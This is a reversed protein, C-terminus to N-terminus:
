PTFTAKVFAEPNELGADFAAYATNITEVTRSDFSSFISLDDYNNALIQGATGFYVVNNALNEDKKIVAGYIRGQAIPDVMSNPVFIKDGDSDAIGALKNWITYNNAYVVRSGIGKLQGFIARITADDYTQATLINTSKIGANPVISGGAPATGDLRAMIIKEKAVAIRKAQHEVLWDEFADISKFQMMRSIAVHKKIEIGSLPLLDFDDQEDDPNATGETVGTADGALIAKHRPIGFGQTMNSKTADDYMPSYSEVLEIIRNLTVQPVVAGTNQTTHTFAAREEATLDGLLHVGDRVALNKLWARRYVAADDAAAAPAAPQQPNLSRVTDVNVGGAAISNRINQATQRRTLEEAIGRAEAELATLDPNEGDLEALIASRRQILQETTMERFNM